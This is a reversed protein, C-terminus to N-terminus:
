GIFLYDLVGQYRHMRFLMHLALCSCLQLTRQIKYLVINDCLIHRHHHQFFFSFSSLLTLLSGPIFLLYFFSQPDQVVVDASACPRVLTGESPYQHHRVGYLYCSVEHQGLSFALMNFLCYSDVHVLSSLVLISNGSPLIREWSLCICTMLSPM